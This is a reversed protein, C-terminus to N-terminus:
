YMLIKIDYNEALSVQHARLIKPLSKTNILENNLIIILQLHRSIIKGNEGYSRYYVPMRASRKAHISLAMKPAM